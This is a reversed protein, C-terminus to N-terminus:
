DATAGSRRIVDAWVRNESAIYSAFDEASGGRGRAGALDIRSRTTPDALTANVERNLRDIIPQPTGRPVQLGFWATAAYGPIGSEAVTPVDPVAAAREPSTVALGRLNGARLLAIASPLNNISMDVRGALIQNVTDAGGRFPVHLIDVGAMAKLLEGSLHLSSGIGSSAYTIRGHRARADALLARLDPWPAARAVCFANPVDAFLAVPALDDPRWNLRAHLNPIIAASGITAFFLHHGDPEMRAALEAGVAGGAGGRNEAVVPQGLRAALGDTLLRALLDTTGGPPFPVVM